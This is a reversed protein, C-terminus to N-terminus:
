GKMDQTNQMQRQSHKVGKKQKTNTRSINVVNVFEECWRKGSFSSTFDCICKLAKAFPKDKETEASCVLVM